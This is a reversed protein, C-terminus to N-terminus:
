LTSTDGRLLVTDARDQELQDILEEIAEDAAHPLHLDM